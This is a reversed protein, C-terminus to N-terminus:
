DCIIESVMKIFKLTKKRNEEGEEEEGGEGEGCCERRISNVIAKTGKRCRRNGSLKKEGNTPKPRWKEHWHKETFIHHSKAMWEYKLSVWVLLAPNTLHFTLTVDSLWTQSESVGHGPSTLPQYLFYVSGEILYLISVLFPLEWTRHCSCVRVPFLFIEEKRTLVWGSYESSPSIRFSFSWYKPWRIRLTLEGSFVRISPFISPLLLLPYCLILCKSPMVSMFRLLSRSVTFSLSARCAPTWPTALLRVCSLSQVVFFSFGHVRNVPARGANEGSYFHEEARAMHCVWTSNAM